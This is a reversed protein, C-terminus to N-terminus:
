IEGYNEEIIPLGLREFSGNFLKSNAHLCPTTNTSNTCYLCFPNNTTFDSTYRCLSSAYNNPIIQNNPWLTSDLSSQSQYPSYISSEAVPTSFTSLNSSMRHLYHPSNYM